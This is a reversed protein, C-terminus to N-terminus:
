VASAVRSSLKTEDADATHIPCLVFRRDVCRPSDFDMIKVGGLMEQGLQSVSRVLPNLVHLNREIKCRTKVFADRQGEDEGTEEPSPDINGTGSGAPKGDPPCEDGDSASPPEVLTCSVPCDLLPAIM